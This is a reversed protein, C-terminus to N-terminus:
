ADDIKERDRQRERERERERESKRERERKREREKERVKERERQQHNNESMGDAKDQETPRQVTDQVSEVVVVELLRDAGRQMRTKETLEDSHSTPHPGDKDSKVQMIWCQLDIFASKGGGGGGGERERQLNIIKYVKQRAERDIDLRSFVM